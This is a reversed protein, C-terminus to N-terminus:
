PKGEAPAMLMLAGVVTLHEMVVLKEKFAEMGTMNWFDHAIPITLLTFFALAGAGIWAHHGGWIALISGILLIVIVIFVLAGAPYLNFHQFEEVTGQFDILKAFGSFWFMSTLILKALTLYAPSRLIPQLGTM